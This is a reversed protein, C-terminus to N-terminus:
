QLINKINEMFTSIMFPKKDMNKLYMYGAKLVEKNDLIKSAEYNTDYLLPYDKGVIEVVPEIRNIIIPTNRLICEVLTNVGSADVLKVFVISKALLEDYEDNNLHSIEGVSKEIKAIYEYLGKVHMNKFSIKCIDVVDDKKKEKGNKNFIELLTNLFDPPPFYNESNKNKLVAKSKIMSTKPLEVQYIGNVDRLWNGVQIVRKEEEKEFEEWVFKNEITESPHWVARVEVKNELLDMKRLEELSKEIKRKLYKTMVILCKCNNLSYIFDEDKFLVDCNYHNNYYSYTHHIFGVWKKTYPIMGKKKYFDKNWHFTKDVYTDIVYPEEISGSDNLEDVINDVIFQWGSRHLEQFNKNMVMISKSEFTRNKYKEYYDDIIWDLRKVLGSDMVNEYMGYYYPAYPDETITWLIEETIQKEIHGTSAHKRRTIIKSLPFNNQIMRLNKTNQKDISRLVNMITNSRLEEKEKSSIYQPAVYRITYGGSDIIEMLYEKAKNVQVVMRKNYERTELIVEKYNEKIYKFADNFETIDFEIPILKENQRTKIFCKKLVEPVDNRLMEIKRTSYISIFPKDTLLSMMVSHFRSAIVVDLKKFYEMMRDVREMTGGTNDEMINLNKSKIEGKIWKSITKDSNKASESTDFPIIYVSYERTLERIMEIIQKKFKENEEGGFWTQPLCVGVKRIRTIEETKTEGNRLFYSIDPTYRTYYSSYRGKVMEYDTKNRMFYYDGVDLKKAIDPYSIGIGYFIVPINDFYKRILKINGEDLFHENVLDGGGIIVNDYKIRKDQIEKCVKKLDSMNYIHTEYKILEKRFVYEFIDDGLNNRNYYGLILLKKTM